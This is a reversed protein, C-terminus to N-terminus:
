GVAETKVGPVIVSVSKSRKRKKKEVIITEDDSSTQDKQKLPDLKANVDLIKSDSKPLQVPPYPYAIRGVDSKSDYVAAVFDPDCSFGNTIQVGKEDYIPRLGSKQQIMNEPYTNLTSISDPALWRGSIVRSDVPGDFCQVRILDTQEFITTDNEKINRGIRMQPGVTGAIGVPAVVIQVGTFTTTTATAQFNVYPGVLDNPGIGQFAVAAVDFRGWIVSVNGSSLSQQMANSYADFTTTHATVSTGTQVAALTPSTANLVFTV